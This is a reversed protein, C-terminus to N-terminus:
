TFALGHSRYGKNYVSTKMSRQLMESHKPPPTLTLTQVIWYTCYQLKYKFTLQSVGPQWSYPNLCICLCKLSHTIRHPLNRLKLQKSQRGNQQSGCFRTLSCSGEFSWTKEFEGDAVCDAPLCTLRASLSATWCRSTVVCVCVYVFVCVCVCVGVCVLLGTNTINYAAGPPAWLSATWILDPHSIKAALKSSM